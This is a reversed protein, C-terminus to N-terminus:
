LDAAKGPSIGVNLASSSSTTSAISSPAPTPTVTSNAQVSIAKAFATAAGALADGLSDQKPHKPTVGAIMPVRPPDDTDRHVGTVASTWLLYYWIKDRLKEFVSELEDEREQRKSM